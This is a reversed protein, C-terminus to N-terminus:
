DVSYIGNEKCWKRAASILAKLEYEYWHRTLGNVEIVRGFEYDMAKNDKKLLPERDHKPIYVKAYERELSPIDLRFCAVFGSSECENFDLEDVDKCGYISCLDDISLMEGKEKDFWWIPYAYEYYPYWRGYHAIDIINMKIVGLFVIASWWVM